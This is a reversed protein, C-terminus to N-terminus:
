EVKIGAARIVGAWKATEERLFARFQEPTTSIPETAIGALREKMEPARLVQAIVLAVLPAAKM